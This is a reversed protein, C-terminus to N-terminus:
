QGFQLDPVADRILRASSSLPVGCAAPSIVGRERSTTGKPSLIVAEYPVTAKAATGCFDGTPTNGRTVYDLLMSVVGNPQDPSQYFTYVEIKAGEHSGDDSTSMFGAGRGSAAIQSKAAEVTSAGGQWIHGPKGSLAGNEQAHLDLDVPAQWILAVKWVEALDRAAPQLNESHGDPYSLGIAGTNGQFLDLDIAARGANDLKRILEYAGYRLSVSQGKRCPSDIAILMRGGSLQSTKAKTAECNAAPQPAGSVQPALAAVQPQNRQTPTAAAAALNAAALRAEDAKKKAEAEAAAIRAEDAKKKADAEAAAIRAEDAKKKADAEAAAIRAEDAKKKADTEAAARKEEDAKTQAEAAAAVRAEDAKKKAEAETALRASEAKKKAAAEAAVRAEQAKAEDAIRKANAEETVRREEASRRQEALVEQNRREVEMDPLRRADFFLPAQKQQAAIQSAYTGLGAFTVCALAAFQASKFLRFM